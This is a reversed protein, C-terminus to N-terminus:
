ILLQKKIDAIKWEEKYEKIKKILQKYVDHIHSIEYFKYKGLIPEDIVLKLEYLRKFEIIDKISNFKYSINDNIVLILMNRALQKCIFHTDLEKRINIDVPARCIACSKVGDFKHLSWEIFCAKHVVHNCTLVINNSMSRDIIDLCCPCYVEM